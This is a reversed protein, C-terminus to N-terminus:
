SLLHVTEVQSKQCKPPLSLLSVTMTFQFGAKEVYHTGPWGLSYLSAIECVFGLGFWVWMTVDFVTFKIETFTM